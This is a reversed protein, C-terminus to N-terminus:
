GPARVETAVSPLGQAVGMEHVRRFLGNMRAAVLQAAMELATLGIGGDPALKIADSFAENAREAALCALDVTQSARDATMGNSICAERLQRRLDPGYDTM